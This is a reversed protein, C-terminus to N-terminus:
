KLTNEEEENGRENLYHTVQRFYQPPAILVILIIAYKMTLNEPNRKEFTIEVPHARTKDIEITRMAIRKPTIM